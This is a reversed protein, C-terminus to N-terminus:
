AAEDMKRLAWRYLEASMRFDGQALDELTAAAEGHTLHGSQRGHVLIGLVGVVSLGRAKAELRATRDDLLLVDGPRAAFLTSAEGPGLGAISGKAPIRRLWGEALADRVADAGPRDLLVEDLVPTTAHVTKLTKRM